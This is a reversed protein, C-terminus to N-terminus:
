CDISSALIRNVFPYTKEFPTYFIYSVYDRLLLLPELCEDIHIACLANHNSAVVKKLTTPRNIRHFVCDSLFNM